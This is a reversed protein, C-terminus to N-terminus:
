FQTFIFPNSNLDTSVRAYFISGSYGCGEYEKWRATRSIWSRDKGSQEADLCGGWWRGDIDDTIELAGPLLSPGERGSVACGGGDEGKKPEIQVSTM